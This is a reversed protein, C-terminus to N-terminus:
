APRQIAVRLAANELIALGARRDRMARVLGAAVSAAEVPRWKGPVLWGLKKALEEGPRSEERDGLLVSPRAITVAPFGLERIADELEGKVRNYFVKSRASAGLASVLRFHPVQAARAAKAVALPFDFDVRRFADQSGAKKITTGLACFAADVGQFWEPHADLRDLETRCERVKSDQRVILPRRVLARVEAIGPEASLLRLLERGVLGTGGAVLAIRPADAGAGL